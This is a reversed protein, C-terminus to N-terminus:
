RGGRTSDKEPGPAESAEVSPFCVITIVPRYKEVFADHVDSHGVLKNHYSSYLEAIFDQEQTRSNIGFKELELLSNFWHTSVDANLPSGRLSGILICFNKIKDFESLPLGRSNIADFTL